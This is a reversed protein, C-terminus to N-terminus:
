HNNSCTQNVQYNINGHDYLFYYPSYMGLAANSQTTPDVTPDLPAFLTQFPQPNDNGDCAINSTSPVVLFTNDISTGIQTIFSVPVSATVSPSSDTTNCFRNGCHAYRTGIDYCNVQSTYNTCVANLSHQGTWAGMTYVSAALDIVFEREMAYGMGRRAATQQDTQWIIIDNTLLDNVTQLRVPDQYILGFVKGVTDENNLFITQAQNQLNSYTTALANNLAAYPNTSGHGYQKGIALGLNNAGMLLDFGLKFGKGYPLFSLAEGGITQGYQMIATYVPSVSTNPAAPLTQQVEKYANQLTTLVGFQTDTYFNAFITSAGRANELWDFELRLENVVNNWDTENYPPGPYQLIALSSQWPAVQVATDPYQSRIDTKAPGATCGCIMGSIYQYITQESATSSYPWPSPSSLAIADFPAIITSDATNSLGSYSVSEPEFDGFRNPALTGSQRAVAAGQVVTTAQLVKSSMEAAGAGYTYGYGGFLSYTDSGSLDRFVSYTGGILTLANGVAGWADRVATHNMSGISSVIVVSNSFGAASQLVSEMSNSGSQAMSLHNFDFTNNSQLQLSDKTLVVVQFGSGVSGSPYSGTFTGPRLNPGITITNSSTSAGTGTDYTVRGPYVFTYAQSNDQVAIGSIVGAAGGVQVVSSPCTGGYCTLREFGYGNGSTTMNLILSYGLNPAGVASDLSVTGGLSNMIEGLTTCAGNGVCPWQTVTQLSQLILMCGLVSCDNPSYRQLLEVGEFPNSGGGPYVTNSVCNLTERDLELVQLGDSTGINPASYLVNGVQIGYSSANSVSGSIVRTVIPVVPTTITNDAPPPNINNPCAGPTLAAATLGPLAAEQNVRDSLEQLRDNIAKLNSKGHSSAGVGDALACSSFVLFFAFTGLFTQGILRRMEVRNESVMTM